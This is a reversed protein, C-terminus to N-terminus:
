ASALPFALSALLAPSAPNFTSRPLAPLNLTSLQPQSPSRPCSIRPGSMSRHEVSIGMRPLGVDFDDDLEAGDFGSSVSRDRRDV